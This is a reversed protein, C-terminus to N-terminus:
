RRGGDLKRFQWNFHWAGAFVLLGFFAAGFFAFRASDSLGDLMAGSAATCMTGFGFGMLFATFERDAM